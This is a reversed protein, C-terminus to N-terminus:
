LQMWQLPFPITAGKGPFVRADSCRQTQEEDECVVSQRPHELEEPQPEPLTHSVLTYTVPLLLTYRHRGSSTNAGYKEPPPNNTQVTVNASENVVVPPFAVM